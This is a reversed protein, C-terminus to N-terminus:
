VMGPVPNEKERSGFGILIIGAVIGLVGTWKLLNMSENLFHVSLISVWIFGTAIIPYLVSLDGGRFAVIMLTGGIVYLIIGGILYYNTILSIFNFSKMSNIGFKYLLQATSTLFTTCILTLVAWSKTEM